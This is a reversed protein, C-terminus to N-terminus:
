SRTRRPSRSAAAPRARALGLRRRLRSLHEPTIGLYSAVHVLPLEDGAAGMRARFRQYRAAADLAMLEYEREAKILYLRQTATALVARWAPRAAMAATVVAWPLTVIRTPACAIVECRAAGGALLDSLSGAFDGAVGIARVRERGDAVLFAERVLGSRVLGVATAPAGSRLYAEGDALMRMRLHGAVAAVDADALPALRTVQARWWALEASTLARM